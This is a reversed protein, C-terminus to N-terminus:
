LTPLSARARWLAGLIPEVVSPLIEVQPVQSRLAAIVSQRVPAVRQFISGAFAVSPTWATGPSLGQIRRIALLILHALDEGERHLVSQALADGQEACRLVVATLESFDPAPTRNAYEVLHSLSPLQWFDLVAPLLSTQSETQSTQSETQSTQSEPRSATIPAEDIARFIARLASLGIHHGSGQDALAPGWGGVTTLQGSPSRAAVNSGTGAIAVVGPQEPFAADLAIEVDGLLLLSGHVRTRFAERLWDAVLPVSEGAAGICTSAVAAMPVGSLATLEALAGDLAAAASNGATRLRKITASRVRALERSEDALLYDTKTGGADIALYFSM